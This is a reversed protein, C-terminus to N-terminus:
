HGHDQGYTALMMVDEENAEAGRREGVITGSHMVYIRDSMGIIEPLESSIMLIAKGENALDRMLQWIDGKAGVDIGRTPEDFILLEPQSILWKALVVKQRNGGSLNEVEAALSPARLRLGSTTQNIVDREVKRNVVGWRQRNGLSPLAANHLVTQGLVLGEANRDETLFGMRHRLAHRPSSIRSPMGNIHILGHDLKCTGFIAHALKTRGAGVLGAIGVIEGGRVVLNVDRLETNVSLKEVRLVEPGAEAGRPPFTESFTKGIMLRVLTGRDIQSVSHTGVVKADKFVTVRDAVTFVEAIRHSIYIVGVGQEKLARIVDFLYDLDRGGLAASPEDMIVVRANLSLAKAIEVMQQQAVSLRGLRTRPDLDIGLRRLIDRARVELEKDDTLGLRSHPERGLFVNQALNMDALLNLEQYIISIGLGQAAHPSAMHVPQGDILIQGSDPQYVGALVKMLTSKGAGNEGVVAHVEGARCSFSVDELAVVGPFSKTINRMEILDTVGHV